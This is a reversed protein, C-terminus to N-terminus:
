LDAVRLRTPGPSPVATTPTVLPMVM